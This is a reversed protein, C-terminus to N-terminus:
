VTESGTVAEGFTPVPQKEEMDENSDVRIDKGTSAADCIDEV